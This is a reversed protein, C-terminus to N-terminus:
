LNYISFDEACIFDKEAKKLLLNFLLLEDHVIFHM